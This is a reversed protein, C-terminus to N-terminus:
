RRLVEREPPAAPQAGAARPEESGVAQQSPNRGLARAARQQLGLPATAAGRTRAVHAARARM